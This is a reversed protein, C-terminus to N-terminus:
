NKIGKYIIYQIRWPLNQYWLKIYERQGFILINKIGNHLILRFQFIEQLFECSSQSTWNLIRKVASLFEVQLKTNLSIQSRRVTYRFQFWKITSYNDCIRRRNHYHVENKRLNRQTFREIYSYEHFLLYRLQFNYKNIFTNRNM